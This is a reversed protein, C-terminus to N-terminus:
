SDVSGLGQDAFEATVGQLGSHWREDLPFEIRLAVYRGSEFVPVAADEELGKPTSQVQPDSLKERSLLSITVDASEVYPWVRKVTIRANTDSRVELTDIFADLTSVPNFRVLKFIDNIGMLRPNNSETRNTAARGIAQLVANSNGWQGTIRNFFLLTNNFNTLIRASIADGTDTVITDGTDTVINAVVAQRNARYSWVAMKDPFPEASISASIGGQFSNLPGPVYRFLGDATTRDIFARDVKGAGIPQAQAGNFVMWGRLGYYYIVEGDSIVSAPLSTGEAGEVIQFDWVSPPGIFTMRWIAGQGFIIADAGAIGPMIRHLRGGGELTTFGRLVSLAGIPDTNPDIWNTPDGAASWSVGNLSDIGFEVVSVAVLFGRITAIDFAKPSDTVALFRDVTGINKSHLIDSLGSCVYIDTGFTTYRGYTQSELPLPGALPTVDQWLGLVEDYKFFYVLDNLDDVASVYHHPTNNDLERLGIFEGSVNTLGAILDTLSNSGQEEPQFVPRYFGNDSPFVNNCLPFGPNAYPPADPAWATFELDVPRRQGSADRLNPM